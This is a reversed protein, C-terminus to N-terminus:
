VVYTAGDEKRLRRVVAGHEVELRDALVADHTVVFIQTEFAARGILDALPPILSPHLSTEPENLAIFSPPRLATLIAVLALYRLTGDSLERASFPRPFEPSELGAELMGGSEIFRLEAGPFAASVAETIPSHAADKWGDGIAFRSYLAGAWNAGDSDVAPSSILPQPARLPSGPDTRLHDYFRADLLRRRMLGLAPYREPDILSALATEFLWLPQEVTQMAGEADRAQLLPGKRELLGVMRGGRRASIREAKVVPDLSLAADTPRPLGLTLDYRLFDIELALRIQTPGKRRPGSWLASAMGGEAVLKQALTGSAAAQLHALARYLASKGVGNPGVIVTAAGLELSVSKLSRYNEIDVREIRDASM